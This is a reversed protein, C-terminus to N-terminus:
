KQAREFAEKAEAVARHYEETELADMEEEDQTRGNHSVAKVFKTGDNGLGTKSSGAGTDTSPQEEADDELGFEALAAAAKRKNTEIRDASLSNNRTRQIIKMVVVESTKLGFSGDVNKSPNFVVTPALMLMEVVLTSQSPGANVHPTKCYIIQKLKQYDLVAEAEGPLFFKTYILLDTNPVMLNEKKGEESQAKLRRKEDKIKSMEQTWVAVQLQESQEKNLRKAQPHKDPYVPHKFMDEIKSADFRDMVKQGMMALKDDESMAQIQAVIANKFDLCFQRVIKGTPNEVPWKSFLIPHLYFSPRNPSDKAMYYAMASTEMPPLQFEYEVWKKGETEIYTSAHTTGYDDSTFFQSKKNVPAGSKRGVRLKDFPFGTLERFIKKETAM